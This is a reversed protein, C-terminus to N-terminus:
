AVSPTGVPPDSPNAQGHKLAKAASSALAGLLSVDQADFTGSRKNLVQFVGLVRGDESKMPFTLLNRTRFGTARDIEPNFRQDAYADAINVTEGTVAVTGAVGVGLPVRITEINEELVVKSWLEGRARDILFITALEANAMRAATESLLRLMADPGPLNMLRQTTELLLYVREMSRQALVRQVDLERLAWLLRVNYWGTAALLSLVAVGGAALPSYWLAGVLLGALAAAGAGLLAALTPRRAIWGAIRARLADPRGEIPEGALFAALDDALAQASTYRQAPQKKLCKLCIIELDRPVRSQLQSPPLPPSHRIQHLADLWSKSELPPRGTLLEYLIAGLAYVDTAPAIDHIQGGAQEPAMYNPTGLVDGTQTQRLDPRKALGFDAIKPIGQATLLVNAPKLDRHIIGHRHVCDMASALVQTLQAARRAPQPTGAIMQALDGGQVLELACFLNGAHEGSAYVQVINPHQLAALTQAELHFRALTAPNAYAASPIMKLAVLRNLGTQRARYVMSMAGRGLLGLIEYGPITPWAQSTALPGPDGATPVRAAAATGGTSPALIAASSLGLHLEIQQKLQGAFTPFRQVYEDISPAEGLSERLQFESCILELARVDGALAPWNRLYEESQIREGRTWRQRQDFCLLAILETNPLEGARALLDGVEPLKDQQWLRELDGAVSGSRSTVGREGHAGHTDSGGM